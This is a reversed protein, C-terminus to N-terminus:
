LSEREFLAWSELPMYADITKKGRVIAVSVRHNGNLVYGLIPRGDRKARKVTRPSLTVFIPDFRVGSAAYRKIRVLQAKSPKQDTYVGTPDHEMDLKDLPVGRVLVYSDWKLRRSWMDRIKSPGESWEAGHKGKGEGTVVIRLMEDRDLRKIVKAKSSELLTLASRRVGEGQRGM